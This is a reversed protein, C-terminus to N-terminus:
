DLVPMAPFQAPGDLPRDWGRASACYASIQMEVADSEDLTGVRINTADPMMEAQGWLTTGCIPCFFRSINRGSDASRDFSQLSGKFTMTNRPVVHNRQPREVDRDPLESLLLEGDLYTRGLDRLPRRRVFMRGEDVHGNERAM